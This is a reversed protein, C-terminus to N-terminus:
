CGYKCGVRMWIVQRVGGAMKFAYRLNLRKSNMKLLWGVLVVATSGSPEMGRNNFCVIQCSGSSTWESSLKAVWRKVYSKLNERRHSHLIGDEPIHRRTFRTRVSTGGFSQNVCPRCPAVDWFFSNKMENHDMKNKDDCIRRTIM